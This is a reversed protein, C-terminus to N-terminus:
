KKSKEGKEGKGEAPAATEETEQKGKKIVEPEVPAAAAEAAAAEPTAVVEEKVHTIHVVTVNPDNLLKVKGDHKLDAVRINVGFTLSSVDVKIHSPIDSPLCEVEVERLVVDLIGGETKVGPAEGVIEIPVTVRLTKDMAIRKLDVHLLHGKIPDVQWDVVMAKAKEGDLNIDFITNHGSDSGLIRGIVKPDVSIAHPKKGAGYLVGPIQGTARLRRAANKDAGERLKAEVISTATATAM